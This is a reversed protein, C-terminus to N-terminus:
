QIINVAVENTSLKMLSEKLAQASGKSDARLILNLEKLNENDFSESLSELTITKKGTEAMKREKAMEEVIRRAHQENQ